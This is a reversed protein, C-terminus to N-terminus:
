GTELLAAGHRIREATADLEERDRRRWEADIRFGDGATRPFVHLHVHFVEQFAAEGDALFMNVGECPLGSRRLARALRHAVRFIHAGLDEDLSELFDVHARPVVLLHGQTVPQIDMFATVQEDDYVPSSEARGAVIDCLLCSGEAAVVTMRANDRLCGQLKMRSKTMARWRCASPKRSRPHSRKAHRPIPPQLRLHPHLNQMQLCQPMIVGHGTGIFVLAQIDLSPEDSSQQCHFRPQPNVPKGISRNGIEQLVHPLPRHHRWIREAGPIVKVGFFQLSSFRPLRQRWPSREGALL